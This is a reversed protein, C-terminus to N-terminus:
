QVRAKPLVPVVREAQKAHAHQVQPALAEKAAKEETSPYVVTTLPTEIGTEADRFVAVTQPKRGDFTEVLKKVVFATALMGAFLGALWIGRSPRLSSRFEFRRDNRMSRERADKRENLVLPHMKSGTLWSYQRDRKIQPAFAVPTEVVKVSRKLSSDQDRYTLHFRQVHEKLDDLETPHNWQMSLGEVWVLDSKVLHKSRIEGLTFPGSEKNERLLFYKNMCLMLQKGVM